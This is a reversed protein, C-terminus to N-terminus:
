GVVLERDGVECFGMMEMFSENLIVSLQGCVSDVKFCKKEVLEKRIFGEGGGGGGM